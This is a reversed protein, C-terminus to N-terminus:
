CATVKQELFLFSFTPLCFVSTSAEFLVDWFWNTVDKISDGGSSSKQFKTGRQVSLYDTGSSKRVQAGKANGNAM